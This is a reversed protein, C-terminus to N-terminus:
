EGVNNSTFLVQGTELQLFLREGLNELGLLLNLVLLSIETQFVFFM